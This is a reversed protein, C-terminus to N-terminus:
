SSPGHYASRRSQRPSRSEGSPRASPTKAPVGFQERLYGHIAKRIRDRLAIRSERRGEGAADCLARTIAILDACLLPLERHPGYLKEVVNVVVPLLRGTASDGNAPRLLRREELDLLAAVRPRRLQHDVAATILTDLAANPDRMTVAAGVAVQLDEAEAAILAMTVADKSGFYQYLSGISVGARAAVANTNYGHFGETELIHAASQLIAAVTRNARGQTPLKRPM